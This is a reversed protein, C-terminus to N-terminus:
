RADRRGTRAGRPSRATTRGQRGSAGHRRAKSSPKSGATRGPQSAGPGGGKAAALYLEPRESVPAGDILPSKDEAIGAIQWISEGGKGSPRAEAEARVLRRVVEAMSVGEQEAREELFQAQWRPLSVQLRHLTTAM